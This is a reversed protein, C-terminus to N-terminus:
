HLDQLGRITERLAHKLAEFEDQKEHSASLENAKAVTDTCKGAGICRLFDEASREPYGIRRVYVLNDPSLNDSTIGLGTSSGLTMAPFLGSTAGMGGLSAPSNVLMRAVPKKLAFQRVVDSDKSHISLSHGTRGRLLLEICKECAHRWDDEVYWPLIPALLERNYADTESVFRRDAILVTAGPAKFGAREAVTPADVGVLDRRHRGDPQFLMAALAASEKETMFYAGCQRFALRAENEIVADVVVCQEASPSTGCDFAKSVVIDEAAARIDASREIFAPGNGTGGYIMPKGSQRCVDLLREVGSNVVLRIDPHGLLEAVGQRAPIPLYALSNEPLGAALGAEIAIDLTKAMARAARPHLCFVVANGSKVALLATSAATSVPDISPCLAAVPGRPVGVELINGIADEKLAGVCKKGDLVRSLARCVFLLKIEKDRLNGYGTEEYALLALERAHNELASAIRGVVGDLFDQPLEALRKQAVGANEALIRAQQMSLLDNDAIM